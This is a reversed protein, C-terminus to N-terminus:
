PDQKRHKSGFRRNDISLISGQKVMQGLKTKPKWNELNLESKKEGAATIEQINEEM